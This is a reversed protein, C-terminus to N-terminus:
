PPPGEIAPASHSELEHAATALEARRAYTELEQRAKTWEELNSERRVTGSVWDITSRHSQAVGTPSNVDIQPVEGGVLTEYDARTAHGSYTVQRGDALRVTFSVHATEVQSGPDQPFPYKFWTM